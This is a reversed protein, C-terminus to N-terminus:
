WRRTTVCREVIGPNVIDVDPVIPQRPQRLRVEDVAFHHHHKVHATKSTTSSLTATQNAKPQQQQHQHPNYCTISSINQNISNAHGTIRNLELQLRQGRPRKWLPLDERGAEDGRNRDNSGVPETEARDVTMTAAMESTEGDEDVTRATGM